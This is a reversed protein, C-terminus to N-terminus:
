EWFSWGCRASKDGEFYESEPRCCRPVIRKRTVVSIKRAQELRFLTLAAEKLMDTLASDADLSKETIVDYVITNITENLLM